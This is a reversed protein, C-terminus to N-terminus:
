GKYIIASTDNSGSRKIGVSTWSGHITTGAPVPILLIVESNGHVKSTTVTITCDDELATVAIYHGDDANVISLSSTELHVYGAQGLQINKGEQISYEQLEHTKSM